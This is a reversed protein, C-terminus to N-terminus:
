NRRAEAAAKMADQIQKFTDAGVDGIIDKLVDCEM